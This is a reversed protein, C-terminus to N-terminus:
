SYRMPDLASLEFPAADQKILGLMLDASVASLTLGLHQHGTAVFLGKHHPIAGLAPLYDPLTPRDGFWQEPQDMIKLDPFLDTVQKGLLAARNWYPPFAPRTFEVTGALRIGNAMPTTLFGREASSIPIDFGDLHQGNLMQHYGRESMLPLSVGFPALLSDSARGATIILNQAIIGIDQNLQTLHDTIFQDTEAVNWKEMRNSPALLGAPGDMLARFRYHAGNDPNKDFGSVPAKVFTGGALMFNQFLQQSVALPNLCHMSNKYLVGHKITRTLHPNLARVEDPNLLDLEVGELQQTNRDGEESYFQDNSEFVRLLGNTKFHQSLGENEITNHWSKTGAMMMNALTRTGRIVQKRKAALTFKMFWPANAMIARKNLSLPSLGDLMMQPLAMLTESRALPIIEEFALIGANGYSCGMGPAQQDILIVSQGDQQLKRALQLGIIGAGIILNDAKM